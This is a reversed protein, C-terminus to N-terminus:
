LGLSLGLKMSVDIQVSELDFAYKGDIYQLKQGDVYAGKRIYRPALAPAAAPVAKDTFDSEYSVTRADVQTLPYAPFDGGEEVQTGAMDGFYPDPFTDGAKLSIRKIDRFLDFSATLKTISNKKPFDLIQYKSEFELTDYRFTIASLVGAFFQGESSVDFMVGGDFMKKQDDTPTGGSLVTEYYPIVKENYLKGLRVKGYVASPDGSNEAAVWEDYSLGEFQMNLEGKDNRGLYYWPSFYKKGDREFLYCTFDIYGALGEGGLKGTADLITNQSFILKRIIGTSDNIKDKYGQLRGPVIELEYTDYKDAISVNVKAEKGEASVTIVAAGSEVDAATVNGNNDVTFLSEDSSSWVVDGTWTDPTFVPNLRQSTGPNMLVKAPTISISQLAVADKNDEECSTFAFAVIAVFLFLLNKKM